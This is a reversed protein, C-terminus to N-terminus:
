IIEFNVPTKKNLTGYKIHYGTFAKYVTAIKIYNLSCMVHGFSIKPLGNSEAAATGIICGSFTRNSCFEVSGDVYLITNEIVFYFVCM